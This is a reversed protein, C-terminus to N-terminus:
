RRRRILPWGGRRVHIPPARPYAHAAPLVFPVGGDSITISALYYDCAQGMLAHDFRDIEDLILLATWTPVRESEPGRLVPELGYGFEGDPNQYPALAAVVVSRDAGGFLVAFRHRDILRATRLL